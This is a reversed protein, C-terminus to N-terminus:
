NRGCLPFNIRNLVNELDYRVHEDVEVLMTCVILNSPNFKRVAAVEHAFTHDREAEEDGEAIDSTDLIETAAANCYKEILSKHRNLRNILSKAVGIYIPSAFQPVSDFLLSRLKILRNPDEALRLLLSESIASQNFVEGKYAPKMQGELSVSYPAERFARFLRQGLFERIREIRQEATSLANLNEVLIEIDRTALQLRYYWAYVGAGQPVQNLEHFRYLQVNSELLNADDALTSM